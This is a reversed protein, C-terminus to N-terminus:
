HTVSTIQCFIISFSFLDSVKLTLEMSEALPGMVRITVAMLIVSLIEMIFGLVLGIVSFVISVTGMRRDEQPDKGARMYAIVAFM